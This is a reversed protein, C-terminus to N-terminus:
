LCRGSCGWIIPFLLVGDTARRTAKTQSARWSLGYCHRLLLRREFCTQITLVGDHRWFDGDSNANDSARTGYNRSTVTAAARLRFHFDPSVIDAAGGM